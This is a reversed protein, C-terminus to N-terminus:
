GKLNNFIDAHSFVIDINAKETDELTVRAIDGKRVGDEDVNVALYYSFVSLFALDNTNKDISEAISTWADGTEALAASFKAFSSKFEDVEEKMSMLATHVNVNFSMQHKLAAELLKVQAKLVEIETSM